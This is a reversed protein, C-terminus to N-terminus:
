TNGRGREEFKDHEKTVEEQAKEFEKSFEEIESESLDSCFEKHYEELTYGLLMIQPRGLNYEMQAKSKAESVLISFAREKTWRETM